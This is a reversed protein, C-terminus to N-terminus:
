QIFSKSSGDTENDETDEKGDILHNAPDMDTENDETDEKGDILHDAPDM